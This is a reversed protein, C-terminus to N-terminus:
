GNSIGVSDIALGDFDNCTYGGAFTFRFLVSPQGALGTLCHQASGWPGLGKGGVCATAAHATDWGAGGKEVNGCWGTQSPVFNGMGQRADDMYLIPKYNYWN